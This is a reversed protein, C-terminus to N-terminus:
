GPCKNRANFDDVHSCTYVRAFSILKSTYMGNCTQHPVDGDLFSVFVIDIDTMAYITNKRM